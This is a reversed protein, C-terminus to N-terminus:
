HEWQKDRSGAGHNYMSLLWGKPNLTEMTKAQKLESIKIKSVWRHITALRRLNLAETTKDRLRAGHKYMSLLWGKPNLAEM